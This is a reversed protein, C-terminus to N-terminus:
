KPEHLRERPLELPEARKSTLVRGTVILSAVCPLSVLKRSHTRFCIAQERCTFDCRRIVEQLVESGRRDV